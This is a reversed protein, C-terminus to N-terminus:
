RGEGEKSPKVLGHTTVEVPGGEQVKRQLEEVLMALSWQRIGGAGGETVIVFKFEVQHVEM